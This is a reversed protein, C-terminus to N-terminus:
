SSHKIVGCERHRFCSSNVLTMVAQVVWLIFLFTERTVIFVPSQHNLMMGWARGPRWRKAFHLRRSDSPGCPLPTQKHLVQKGVKIFWMYLWGLQMRDPSTVLVGIEPGLPKKTKHTFAVPMGNFLHGWFARLRPLLRPYDPQLPAAEHICCLVFSNREEDQRSWQELQGSTVRGRPEKWVDTVSKELLDCTHGHWEGASFYAVTRLM